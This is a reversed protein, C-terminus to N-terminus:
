VTLELDEVTLPTLAATAASTRASLRSAQRDAM